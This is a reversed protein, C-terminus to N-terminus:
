AQLDSSAGVFRAFGHTDLRTEDVADAVRRQPRAPRFFKPNFM